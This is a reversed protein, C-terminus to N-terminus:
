ASAPLHALLARASDRLAASVAADAALAAVRPRLAAAGAAVGAAEPALRLLAAVGHVAALVVEESGAGAVELCGSFAAMAGADSVATAQAPAMGRTAIALTHVASRRLEPTGRLAADVLGGAVGSDVVAGTAGPKRMMLSALANSAAVRLMWHGGSLVVTLAPLVGASLAAEVAADGGAAVMNSALQLAPAQLELAAHSVLEVARAATAPTLATACGPTGTFLALATAAHQVVEGDPALLCRELLPLSAAVAAPAPPPSGRMLNSLAWAATRANADETLETAEAAPRVMDMLPPVAGAALVQDRLAVADGAINGLAWAAQLRLTQGDEGGGANTLAGVLPEVAGVEAVAATTESDGSAATTLVWAAALRVEVPFNTGLAIVCAPLLGMAAIADVDVAEGDEGALKAQLQLVVGAVVPAEGGEALRKLDALSGNPVEAPVVLATEARVTLGVVAATEEAVQAAPEPVLAPAAAVPEPVPAPAAPEPAAVAAVPEPAAAAAGTVAVAAGAAAVVGVAVGAVVGVALAESGAAPAPAVVTVAAAPATPTPTMQDAASARRGGMPTGGVVPTMRGAAAKTVGPKPSAAGELNGVAARIGPPRPPLGTGPAVPARGHAEMAPTAPVVAAVAVAPAAPAPTVPAAPTAPAAAVAAPAPTAPAAAAPAAAPAPTAPATAVTAPPAPPPGGAAAGGPRPHGGAPAAPAGVVPAAVAGAAAAAAAAEEEDGKGRPLPKGTLREVVAAVPAPLQVAGTSVAFALSGVALLVTVAALTMNTNSNM